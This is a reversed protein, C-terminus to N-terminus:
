VQDRRKLAAVIPVVAKEVSRGAVYGGIGLQLLTWAEPALRFHLIGTQDAVVLALFTLMTIPRWTATLLHESKAEAEVIAAKVKLEDQAYEIGTEIAEVYMGLTKAKQALKEEESTHLEDILEVAPKFIGKILEFINM